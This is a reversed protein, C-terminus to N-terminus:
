EWEWGEGTRAAVLIATRTTEIDAGITGNDPLSLKVLTEAAAQTSLRDAFSDLLVEARQTFIDDIFDARDAMNQLNIPTASAATQSLIM